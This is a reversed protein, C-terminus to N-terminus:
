PQALIRAKEQNFEDQTIAGSDFLQKVRALKAYKDEGSAPAPTPTATVAGTNIKALMDPVLEHMVDAPNPFSHMASNQWHGEVLLNGSKADFMQLDISKLYMVIDWYWHDNYAVIVDVNAAQRTEAPLTPKIELGNAKLEDILFTDTKESSNERTVLAASKPNMHASLNAVTVSHSTACGGLLGIALAALSLSIFSHIRRVRTRMRAGM